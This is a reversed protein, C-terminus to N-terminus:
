SAIARKVCDLISAWDRASAKGVGIIARKPITTLFARFASPKALKAAQHDLLVYDFPGTASAIQSTIVGLIVDPRGRHYLDSSVVIAPRRKIGQVGPFDVIVIDGAQHSM